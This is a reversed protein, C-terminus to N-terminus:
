DFYCRRILNTTLGGVIQGKAGNSFTVYSNSYPKVQKLNKNEETIHRSCGSNIDWYVEHTM